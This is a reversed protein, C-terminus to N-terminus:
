AETLMRSIIELRASAPLARVRSNGAHIALHESGTFSNLLRGLLHQGHVSREERDGGVHRPGDRMARVAALFPGADPEVHVEIYGRPQREFIFCILRRIFSV